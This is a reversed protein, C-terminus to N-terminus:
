EVVLQMFYKYKQACVNRAICLTYTFCELARPTSLAAVETVFIEWLTLAMGDAAPPRM